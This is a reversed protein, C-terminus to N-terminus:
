NINGINITYSVKDSKENKQTEVFEALNEVDIIKTDLIPVDCWIGNFVFIGPGFANTYKIAQKRLKERTMKSDFHPYNKADLWKYKGMDKLLFDPTLLQGKLEEETKYVKNGLIKQIREEFLKSRKNINKFYEDSFVTNSLDYFKRLSIPNYIKLAKELPMNGNKAWKRNLMGNMHNYTDINEQSANPPIKFNSGGFIQKRINSNFLILISM